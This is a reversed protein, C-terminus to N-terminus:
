FKLLISYLQTITDINKQSHIAGTNVLPGSMPDSWCLNIMISNLLEKKLPTSSGNLFQGMHRQSM